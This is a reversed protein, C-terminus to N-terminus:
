CCHKWRDAVVVLSKNTKASFLPLLPLLPLVTLVHSVPLLSLATVVIAQHLCALNLKDQPAELPQHHSCPGEHAYLDWWVLGRNSHAQHLRETWPSGKNEAVAELLLFGKLKMDIIFVTRTCDPNSQIGRQWLTRHCYYRYYYHYHLLLVALLPRHYCCYCRGGQQCSM